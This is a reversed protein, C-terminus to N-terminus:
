VISDFHFPVRLDFSSWGDRAMKKGPFPTLTYVGGMFQHRLLTTLYDFMQLTERTGRGDKVLLRFTVEGLVRQQPVSEMTAQRAALFDIAVVLFRDGVTNTDVMDTNEYFVRLTPHDATLATNIRAVLSDRAQVYTTM